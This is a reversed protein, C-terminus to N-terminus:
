WVPRYNDKKAITKAVMKDVMKDPL